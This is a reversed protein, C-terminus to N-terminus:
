HADADGMHVMRRAYLATQDTDGAQMALRTMLRWLRASSQMRALNAQAAALAQRPKNGALYANALANFAKWRTAEDPAWDLWRQALAAGIDPRNAWRAVQLLHPWDTQDAPIRDVFRQADEAAKVPDGAALRSAILADFAQRRIQGASARRPRAATREDGVLSPASASPSVSWAAGALTDLHVEPSTKAQGHFAGPGEPEHGPSEASSLLKEALMAATDYLGSDVAHQIEALLGRTGLDPALTLLAKRYAERAHSRATSGPKAAVYLAREIGLWLLAVEHDPQDLLPRAIRAAEDLQGVRLQARALQLRLDRQDPKARLQLQLYALTAASPSRGSDLQRNILSQPFLLVLLVLVGLTLGLMHRLGFFRHSLRPSDYKRYRPPHDRPQARNATMESTM